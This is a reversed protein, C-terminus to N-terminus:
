KARAGVHRDMFAISRQWAPEASAAHYSAQDPNLFAHVAGPYIHMEVSPHRARIKQVEPMPVVPDIDGYHMITPCRPVLDIYGATHVHSGYFVVQAAFDLKAAAKWSWSGGTCFGSM